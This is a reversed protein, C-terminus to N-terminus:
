IFDNTKYTYHFIINWLDVPLWLLSTLNELRPKWGHESYNRYRRTFSMYDCEACLAYRYDGYMSAGDHIMLCNDCVYRDCDWCRRMYRFEATCIHCLECIVPLDDRLELLYYDYDDTDNNIIDNIKRVVHLQNISNTDVQINYEKLLYGYRQIIDIIIRSSDVKRRKNAM